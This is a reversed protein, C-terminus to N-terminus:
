KTSRFRLTLRGNAPVEVRWTSREDKTLLRRDGSAVARDFQMEYAVPRHHDNSVTLEFPDGREGAPRKVLRVGLGTATGVEIEVEEGVAKDAVHGEGLLMPRERGAGFLVLRGAPLPLGLGDKTRNHFRLLRVVQINDQSGLAAIRSRYVQRVAVKERHFMAVQKQANAAVTVPEPIRYLKLDGLNEQRAEM